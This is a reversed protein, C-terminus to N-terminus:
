NITVKFKITGSSNGLLTGINVMLVGNVIQANDGDVGDTRPQDNYLITGLSYTTHVPITDTAIVSTANGTGSNSFTITYVLTAGPINAGGGVVSVTKTITVNPARATTYASVNGTVSSDTRSTVTFRTSDLAQDPTTYPITDIAILHMIGNQSITGTNSLNLVYDGNNLVSDNNTDVYLTWPFSRSSAFAIRFSDSSNGNNTITIVYSVSLDVDQTRSPPSIALAFAPAASVTLSTIGSNGTRTINNLSDSYSISSSNTINTGLLVGSNVKADFTMTGNGSGVVSGITWTITRSLSDYSASQGNPVVFSNQVFSLNANLVDTVSVNRANGTGTNQYTLTYTVTQGPARNSNSQLKSLTVVATSITTVYTGSANLINNFTSTATVILSDRSNSTTNYPVFIRAIFYYSSDISLSSTSNVIGNSIENAELIGNRNLDRYLQPSWNRSSTRALSFSDIGNGTNTVIFPYYVFSSDSSIKSNTSPSLTVGAVQSITTSVVNSSVSPLSTGSLNTFNVIVSNPIQTGASTGAVKVKFKITGSAGKQVQGVKVKVLASNVFVVSDNGNDTQSINNIMVSNSVYNTRQSTSDVVIVNAAIGSGINSYSITYTLTDGFNATPKDVSKSISIQPSNTATFSSQVIKTTGHGSVLARNTITAQDQVSTDIIAKYSLLVSDNKAVAYAPFSIIGSSLTGSHSITAILVTIGSPITDFVSIATANVNGTNKVKITYSMTDGPIAAGANLDSVSKSSISLNVTGVTATTSITATTGSSTLSDFYSVSITNTPQVTFTGNNNAGPPTGLITGVTAIFIGTNHGTEIFTLNETENQNSTATFSYTEATSTDHNLDLDTLTFTLSNGALVITPSVSITATYGSIVRTFSSVTASNGSSNIADSYTARITDGAQANFFGDNNTGATTGYVTSITNMFIGSNLTTEFLGIQESENTAANVVTVFLLGEGKLDNDTVTITINNSPFITATQTITGSFTQVVNTSTTNSSTASGTQSSTIKAKNTYTGVSSAKVTVTAQGSTGPTMSGVNWSVIQGNATGSSVGNLTSSLYTLGNQLTDLLIVSDVNATGTM